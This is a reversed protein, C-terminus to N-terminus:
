NRWLRLLFEFLSEFFFNLDMTGWIKLNWLCKVKQGPFSLLANFSLDLFPVRKDLEKNTRRQWKSLVKLSREDTLLPQVVSPRKGRCNIINFSIIVKLKHQGNKNMRSYPTKVYLQSFLLFQARLFDRKFARTRKRSYHLEAKTFFSDIKKVKANAQGESFSIAADEFSYTSKQWRSDYM